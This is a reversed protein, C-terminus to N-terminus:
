RRREATRWADIADDQMLIRNRPDAQWSTQADPLEVSGRGGPMPVTVVEDGVRVEVPMAFALSSPTQWSLALTSGDQVVELRPLAAQYFYADFFWRLDPAGHAELIRRFDDTTRNVPRITGPLPDTTGYTMETLAPFLVEDGVLTRLTHMVWAGKYYIDTGWGAEADGYDPHESDPPVLPVRSLIAKRNEWMAADYFMEGRAWGLYLPQMWTGIGEHLWMHNLTAHTLQNAFWEHAFEHALLWDYGLPDRRFQNGYANITQHEMGLHPTEAVGAKEDGFPYPGVTEEFFAIQDALEGLLREAEEGHGPLHWFMLPIENGYRSAYSREALEYPGIQLAIGYNSPDRAQWHFTRSGNRNDYEGVLRGNGAAVLGDPVTVLLDLSASRHASHDICPWFMDCGEGQISTAIWPEGGPATAWTFGGDWPPNAAVHPTGDYVISVLASEGARMARPLDITLLGDPNRWDAAPVPVDEVEIEAIRYRPDLDFQLQATDATAIVKHLVRGAISRTAPDVSISLSAHEIHTAARPGELPLDTQATREALPPADQALSPAAAVFAVFALSAALRRPTM